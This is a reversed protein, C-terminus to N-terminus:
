DLLRHPLQGFSAQLAQANRRQVSAHLTTVLLRGHIGEPQPIQVGQNRRSDDFDTDIHRVRADHDDLIRLSKPESREMLETSSDASSGGDGMADEDLAIHGGLTGFAQLDKYIRVISELDCLFVQFQSSRAVDKPRDLMAIVNWQEPRRCQQTIAVKGCKRLNSLNSRLEQFAVRDKASRFM